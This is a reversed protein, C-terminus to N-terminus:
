LIRDRCSAFLKELKGPCLQIELPELETWATPFGMLLEVFQPCLKKGITSQNMNVASELQPSDRRRESPCDPANRARPTPFMEVYRRITIQVHKGTRDNYSRQNPRYNTDPPMPGGETAGPTPLYSGGKVNTYRELPHLPYLVGDVIMGWRPLKKLSAFDEEAQSPQSTKLSYSSPSSKKPFACSRTFYSAESGKWAKELDQLLSIRAHDLSGASSSILMRPLNRSEQLDLQNMINTGNMTANKAFGDCTSLNTITTTIDKFQQEETELDNKVEVALVNKLILCNEMVSLMTSYKEQENTPELEEETFTITKEM